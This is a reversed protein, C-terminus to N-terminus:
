FRDCCVPYSRKSKKKSKFKPFNSIKKFFRSYANNLDDCVRQLSTNSVENLWKFEKKISPLMRIMNFKSIYKGGNKHNEQQVALLHNWIFRCCGIHKRLLEEQSKTPYIRITIGKYM